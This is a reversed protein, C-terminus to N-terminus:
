HFIVVLLLSVPEGCHHRSTDTIRRCPPSSEVRWTVLVYLLYTEVQATRLFDHHFFEEFDIRDKADRKLLSYLLDTLLPSTGPPIRPALRCNKEYFQKLAQPTQAQM